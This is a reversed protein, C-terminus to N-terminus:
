SGDPAERYRTKSKWTNPDLNHSYRFSSMRLGAGTLTSRRIVVLQFGGLEHFAVIAAVRLHHVPGALVTSVVPPALDNLGGVVVHHLPDRAIAPIISGTPLARM